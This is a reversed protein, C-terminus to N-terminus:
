LRHLYNKIVDLNDSEWIVIVHYGLNHFHTLKALDREWKEHATYSSGPLRIIDDAKYIKPNAHVYDGNIEIIIKKDYHIEDAIYRGICQEGIFGLNDLELQTRITVHLKSFRKAINFLNRYLAIQKIPDQWASTLYDRRRQIEHPTNIGEKIGSIMKDRIETNCWSRKSANSYNKRASESRCGNAHSTKWKDFFSKDSLRKIVYNRVINKYEDNKYLTIIKPRMKEIIIDKNYTGSCKFSCFQKIHTRNNNLELEAGCNICTPVINNLKMYQHQFSVARHGKAYKKFKGRHFLPKENCMGCACIPAIGAYETHIIYDELSSGHVTQLHKTLDGGSNTKFQSDCLHCKLM